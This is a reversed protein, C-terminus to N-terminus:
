RRDGAMRHRHILTSLVGFDFVYGLMILFEAYASDYLMTKRMYSLGVGAPTFAAVKQVAEPFFYNPYFCGSIYALGLAVIFQMVIMDVIGDIAEYIFFQMLTIMMIVPLIKIVYLIASMVTTDSLEKIGLNVKGTVFGFAVAFIICTIVTFILFCLYRYITQTTATIGRVSLMRAMAVNKKIFLGNCAIGWLLLLLMIASCIYYGAFSISDATGTKTESYLENRSLLLQVYEFDIEEIRDWKDKIKYKESLDLIGNTSKQAEGLINKIVDTIENILMPGISSPANLTVYTASTERGYYVDRVFNEPIKVYGSIERNKLAKKADGEDLEAFDVSFRTSDMNKLAEIALQIMSDETNGVIGIKVKTSKEENSSGALSVAVTLGIAVVTLLVVALVSPYHKFFRKFQLKFYNSKKM